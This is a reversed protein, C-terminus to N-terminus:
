EFVLGNEGLGDVGEERGRRGSRKRGKGGGVHMGRGIESVWVRECVRCEPGRRRRAGVGRVRGYGAVRIVTM